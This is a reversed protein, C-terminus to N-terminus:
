ADREHPRIENIKEKKQKEWIKVEYYNYRYEASVGNVPAILLKL